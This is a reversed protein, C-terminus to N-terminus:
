TPLLRIEFLWPWWKGTVFLRDNDADYAIGNLVDVRDTPQRTELLGSLDLWATVRGDAPDIVAISDTPWVNAYVMGDIYELENLNGVEAAGDRVTVYSDVDFTEPDRFYLRATGDSMIFHTGDCTLGWGEAEYTFSGVRDLSARDYVFGVHSRWTLQVVKDECLAIGEGFLDDNLAVSDIIGGTELRVRRLSSSGQRGTSEYLIGDHYVLGQTFADPDHPYANVVEYTYRGNLPPRSVPPSPERPLAPEVACGAAAVVTALLPLFVCMSYSRMSM